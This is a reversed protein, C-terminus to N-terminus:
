LEKPCIARYIKIYDIKEDRRERQPVFLGVLSVLACFLSFVFAFYGIVM